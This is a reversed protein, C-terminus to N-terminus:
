QCSEKVSLLKRKDECDKLFDFKNASQSKILACTSPAWGTPYLGKNEGCSGDNPTPYIIKLVYVM